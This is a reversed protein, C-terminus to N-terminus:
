SLVSFLLFNEEKPRGTVLSSPFLFAMPDRDSLQFLGRPLPRPTSPKRAHRRGLFCCATERATLFFSAALLPRCFAVPCYVSGAPKLGAIVLLFHWIRFRNM